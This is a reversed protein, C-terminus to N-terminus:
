IRESLWIALRTGARVGKDLLAHGPAEEAGHALGTDRHELEDDRFKTVKERLEAEDDGLADIQARYHADITEEVAVTCAMAARTGLLASAAGLAFGGVHWLPSLVTPRVQREALLEDFAALHEREQEAMHKIVPGAATRGLVALQGDYIRKAGQEGAHDVRLMREVLAERDPDGPLRDQATKSM